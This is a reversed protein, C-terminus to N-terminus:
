YTILKPLSFCITNYLRKGFVSLTIAETTTTGLINRGGSVRVTCAYEGEDEVGVDPITLSGNHILGFGSESTSFQGGSIVRPGGWSIIVSPLVDVHPDFTATCTLTVSLGNPVSDSPNATTTVGPSPVPVIFVDIIHIHINTM